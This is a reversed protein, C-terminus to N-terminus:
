RDFSRLVAVPHGRTVAEGESALWTIFRSTGFSRVLVSGGIAQIEGIVTDPKLQRGERVRRHHLRGRAPAIVLRESMLPFEGEFLTEDVKSM